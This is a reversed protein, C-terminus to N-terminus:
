NSVDPATYNTPFWGALGSRVLVGRSWGSADAELVQAARRAGDRASSRARALGTPFSAPGDVPRAEPSDSPKSVTATL